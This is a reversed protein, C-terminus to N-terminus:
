IDKVKQGFIFHQERLLYEDYLSFKTDVYPIESGALSVKGHVIHDHYIENSYSYYTESLFNIKQKMFESFRVPVTLEIKDSEQWYMNQSKMNYNDYIDCPMAIALNVLQPLAYWDKQKKSFYAVGNIGLENAVNMVLQSIIYESKFSRNMELIRFSTACVLPFIELYSYVEKLEDENVYAGGTSGNIFYQSICLNLTNIEKKIRFSSVQFLEFEPMGMELWCGFSSTALYMCPVGPSSFRQTAVLGRNSFPIHLMDRMNIDEVGIRAKFFSLPHKMMKEYVDAYMKDYGFKKPRIKPPAIGRFAYNEEIPAVIHPDDCYKELIQKICEQAKVIKANYYFELSDIILKINEETRSACDSGINPIQKVHVLYRELLAKLERYYDKDYKVVIPLEFKNMDVPMFISKM